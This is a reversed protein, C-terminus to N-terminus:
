WHNCFCLTGLFRVQMLWSFSFFLCSLFLIFVPMIFDDWMPTSSYSHSVASSAAVVIVLILTYKAVSLYFSVVEIVM